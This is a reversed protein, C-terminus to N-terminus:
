MILQERQWTNRWRVNTLLHGYYVYLQRDAFSINACKSITFLDKQASKSTCDMSKEFVMRFLILFPAVCTVGQM